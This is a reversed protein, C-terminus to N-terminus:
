SLAAEAILAATQAPATFMAEHGTAIVHTTWHPGYKGAKANEYHSPFSTREMAPANCWIYMSPARPGGNIFHLVDTWSSLPHPTLGRAIRDRLRHPADALGLADLPIPAMWEGDPTLAALGAITAAVTAPSIGPPAVMSHGGRPVVADLYVLRKVRAPLRDAVGTIVMGGFSHGVLTVGTLEEREIVGTIDTIFTELGRYASRLHVRDGLGTMTPAFVRAGRAALRDAVDRWCWGGHWAGHVLVITQGTLDDAVPPM